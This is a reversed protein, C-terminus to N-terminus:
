YTYMGCLGFAQSVGIRLGFWFGVGLWVACCQFVRLFPECFRPDSTFGIIAVQSLPGACCLM